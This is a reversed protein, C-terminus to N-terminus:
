SPGKCSQHIQKIQRIHDPNELSLGHVTNKIDQLQVEAQARLVDDENAVRAHIPQGMLGSGKLVLLTDREIEVGLTCIYLRETVHDIDVIHQYGLLYGPTQYALSTGVTLARTM